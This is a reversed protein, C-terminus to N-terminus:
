VETRLLLCLTCQMSCLATYVTIWLMMGQEAGVYGWGRGRCIVGRGRCIRVGQGEGEGGANDM